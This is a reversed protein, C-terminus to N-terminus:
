NHCNKCIGKFYLHAETITNNLISKQELGKIIEQPLDDKYLDYLSGCNNCKFHGHFDTDADFRVENDEITIASILGKQTFTKLTNYITTKSLTPIQTIMNSYIMEATPHTKNNILYEYIKIRHFSPSIGNDLLINKFEDLM